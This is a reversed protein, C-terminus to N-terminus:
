CVYASAHVGFRDVATGLIMGSQGGRDNARVETVRKDHSLLSSGLKGSSVELELKEM